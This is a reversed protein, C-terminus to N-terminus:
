EGRRDVGGHAITLAEVLALNRQWSELQQEEETDEEVEPIFDEPEYPAAGSESDRFANAITSAITAAQYHPWV